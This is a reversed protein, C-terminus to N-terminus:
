AEPVPGSASPGDGTDAEIFVQGTAPVRERIRVEMADLRAAVDDFTLQADLEVRLAVLLDDPGVYMTRLEVLREFSPEEEVAEAIAQLDDDEAAEGILLSRMEMALIAAVGALVIGVGISGVADYRSDGTLTAMGVGFLACLLGVEAASDELLVVATEPTKTDRVFAWWSDGDRRVQRAERVAVRLSAGELVMSVLIVGIAWGTSTLTEPTLIATVGEYFAFISGLTFLLVAVVFSWFYRESGFGFPHQRTARQHGRRHGLLLLGENSTDAVSHLSEALMSSSGTVLFAVFKAVAIGLNAALAALVEKPSGQDDGAGDDGEASGDPDTM